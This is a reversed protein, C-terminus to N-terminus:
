MPSVWRTRQIKHTGLLKWIVMCPELSWHRYKWSMDKDTNFMSVLESNITGRSPTGLSWYPWNVSVSFRIHFGFWMPLFAISFACEHGTWLVLSYKETMWYWWLIPDLGLPSSLSLAFIPTMTVPSPTWVTFGVSFLLSQNLKGNGDCHSRTKWRFRIRVSEGALWHSYARTHIVGPSPRQIFSFLYCRM